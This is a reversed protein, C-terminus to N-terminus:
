NVAANGWDAWPTDGPGTGARRGCHRGAGGFFTGGATDDPEGCFRAAWLTTRSWWFVYRGCYRGAGGFFYRGLELIWGWEPFDGLINILISRLIGPCRM